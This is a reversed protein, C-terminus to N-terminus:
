RFNYKKYNVIKHGKFKVGTRTNFYYYKKNIRKLGKAEVGTRTDFYYTKHNVTKFGKQIIDNVYYYIKGSETKIGNKLAVPQDKLQQSQNTVVPITTGTRKIKM